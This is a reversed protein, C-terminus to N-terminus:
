AITLSPCFSEKEQLVSADITPVQKTPFLKIEAHLSMCYGGMSEGHRSHDILVQSIINAGGVAMATGGVSFKCSHEMCYRKSVKM